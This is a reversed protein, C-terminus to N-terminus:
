APQRPAPAREAEAILARAYAEAFEELDVVEDSQRDVVTLSRPKHGM